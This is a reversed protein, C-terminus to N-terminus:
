LGPYPEARDLFHDPIICHLVNGVRISGTGFESNWEAPQPDGVRICGPSIARVRSEGYQEKIEVKWARKAQHGYGSTRQQLFAAPLNSRVGPESAAEM